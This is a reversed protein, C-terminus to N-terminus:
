KSLQYLRMNKLVETKNLDEWIGDAYRARWYPQRYGAKEGQILADSDDERAILTGMPYKALAEGRTLKKNKPASSRRKAHRPMQDAHKLEFLAHFTDLDSLTYLKKAEDDTWYSPSATARLLAPTTQPIM